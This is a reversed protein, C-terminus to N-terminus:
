STLSPLNMPHGYIRAEDGLASLAKEVRRTGSAEAIAMPGSRFRAQSSPTEEKQPPPETEREREREESKLVLSLKSQRERERNETRSALAALAAIGQCQVRSTRHVDMLATTATAIGKVM